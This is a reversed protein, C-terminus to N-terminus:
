RLGIACEKLARFDIKNYEGRVFLPGKEQYMAAHRRRGVDALEAMTYESGERGAVTLDSLWNYLKKAQARCMAGLEFRREEDCLSIADYCDSLALVQPLSGITFQAPKDFYGEGRGQMFELRVLLPQSSRLHGLANCHSLGYYAFSSLNRMDTAEHYEPIRLSFKGVINVACYASYEIGESNLCAAFNEFCRQLGSAFHDLARRWESRMAHSIHLGALFNAFVLDECQTFKAALYAIDDVNRSAQLRGIYTRMAASEAIPHEAM